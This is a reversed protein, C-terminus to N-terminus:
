RQILFESITNLADDIDFPKTIYADFGADLARKVDDPMAAASIAVVPMKTPAEHSQLQKLAEIGNMGPLNIDMLVLDLTPDQALSIGLEANHATILEVSGLDQIIMAMLATNIPNDEVYLIKKSVGAPIKNTAQLEPDDRVLEQRKESDSIPLEFWFVSGVDEVSEFGLRGGMLMTLDRSITLGIGTGQIDKAEAGLRNFPVFIDQQTDLPIGRGTDTIVFRLFGPTNMNYTLTISGADKNYKVANMLLNLLVQKLRVPDAKVVPPESSFPATLVTISRDRALTDILTLCDAVLPGPSVDDTSVTLNGSEIRALDLVQDILQMLHEGAVVIYKSADRFNERMREYRPDYLLRGFGLISNLPTRLEHSMSSLFESKARNAKDAARRADRLIREREDAASVDFVQILCHREGAKAIPRIVITQAMARGNDANGAKTRLPFLTKNLKHSIRSSVGQTLSSKIASSLRAPLERGFAEGISSGIANKAPTSSAIEIWNNWLTVKENTNIIIFGCDAANLADLEITHNM